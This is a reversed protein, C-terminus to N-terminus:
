PCKSARLSFYDGKYGGKGKSGIAVGNAAKEEGTFGEKKLSITVKRDWFL